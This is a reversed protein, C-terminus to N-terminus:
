RRVEAVIFAGALEGGAPSTRRRLRGPARRSGDPTTVGSAVMRVQGFPRLFDRLERPALLRGSAYPQEGKALRRRNIRALRNLAGILVSGGRKACRFMEKVMSPTDSVFALVAMAAVVDFSGEAFPLDCADALEFVCGPAPRSRAVRVVEESIDVGIVAFGLSAFFRSWHGTGCGVDLLRDGPRPPKLVSLVDAKQRRDHRRGAATGYWREYEDALPGFDFLCHPGLDGSRRVPRRTM